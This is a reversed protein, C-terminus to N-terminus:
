KVFYRGILMCKQGRFDECTKIETKSLFTYPLATSVYIYKANMKAMDEAFQPFEERMQRKAKVVIEADPPGFPIAYMFNGIPLIKPSYWEYTIAVDLAGTKVLELYEVPKGLACGYSEDFTIAGDTRETIMDMWLKVGYSALSLEPPGFVSGMRLKMPTIEPPAEEVPPKEVPPKEVPAPAACGGFVLSVIVLVGVIILLGRKLKM